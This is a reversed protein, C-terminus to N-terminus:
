PKIMERGVHVLNHLIVLAVVACSFGMLYPIWFLPLALTATVEGTARLANGYAVFRWALLAFLAMGLLRLISDVVTRWRRSLKHFFYEVAVHGKVATTYPLACALTVAGAVCVLDFAGVLPRRFLRLAVDAVTVLMMAILAAGAVGALALVTRVLVREYIRWFAQM